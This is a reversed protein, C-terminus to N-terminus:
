GRSRGQRGGGEHDGRGGIATPTIYESNGYIMGPVFPKLSSLTAVRESAFAVASLFGCPADGAVEVARSLKLTDGAVAWHDRARICAGQPLCIEAGADFGGRVPDIWTYGSAYERVTEDAPNFIEVRLPRAQTMSAAGAGAGAVALGWTEDDNRLALVNAHATLQGLPLTRGAAKAPSLLLASDEIM